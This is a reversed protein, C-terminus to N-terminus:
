KKPVTEWPLAGCGKRRRSSATARCATVKPQLVFGWEPNQTQPSSIFAARVGPGEGALPLPSGTNAPSPPVISM